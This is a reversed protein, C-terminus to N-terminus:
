KNKKLNNLLTKLNEISILRDDVYYLAAPKGFYLEDYNVNWEKMQTKTLETWDIGTKSGRATYLVIKFGQLKLDNILEVVEYNCSALEYNNNPTLNAIVGDIDFCITEQITGFSNINGEKKQLKIIAKDLDEFTDIDNFEDEIFGRIITGSMSNKALIVESKIVDINATQIYVKPLLQRPENYVDQMGEIGLLPEINENNMLKWMKYPTLPSETITRISDVEPNAIISSIVADIEGDNRIPCTPRLHVCYDPVYKENEWLWTLLHKFVELDTSSDQSLQDPRIFPVEAGYEMGIKAYEKSDTSLIIRNILKSEKAQLISWALLPKGGVSRINKNPISKSGSRAPIIALINM